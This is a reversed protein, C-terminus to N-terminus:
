SGSSETKLSTDKDRQTKLIKTLEIQDQLAKLNQLKKMEQREMDKVVGERLRERDKKQKMHVYSIIGVAFTVSGALTLKSTLSM